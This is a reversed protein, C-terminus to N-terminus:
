RRGVGPASSSRGPLTRAYWRLALGFLFFFVGAIIMVRGSARSGEVDPDASILVQEIGGGECVASSPQGIVSATSALHAVEGHVSDTLVALEDDLDGPGVPLEKERAQFVARCTVGSLDADAPKGWLAMGDMRYAGPIEILEGPAYTGADLEPQSEATVYRSVGLIVTIVSWLLILVSGVRVITPWHRRGM